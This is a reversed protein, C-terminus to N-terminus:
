DEMYENMNFTEELEDVEKNMRMAEEEAKNDFYEEDYPSPAIIEKDAYFHRCERWAYLTADSLHNQCRPDEHERQEDKWKLQKWETVLENNRDKVIKVKGEIIDDRLLRLFTAKDTKEASTLPLLFKRRMFEVGQKNAGDIMIKNFPYKKQFISIERAVQSFDLRTEKRSEIVIAREDYKHFGLVAFSSADNFGLDVGLVYEHPTKREEFRDIFVDDVLKIIMMDENICWENLYHSRFWAANIAQPNRELIDAIMKEFQDRVFPNDKTTWKHVSWGKEQGTTVSEFFTLPIDECTGSLIINGSLDMVTPLCIQYVLKKMDITFSGAEDICVKKYKQGLVKRMEKESCDAGMLKIKQKNPFYIESRSEHPKGGLAFQENKNKLTDWIIERASGITLGLYLCNGDGRNVTELFEIALGESKGARRTCNYAKLSSNDEIAKNQVIFEPCRLSTNVPVLNINKGSRRLVENLIDTAEM